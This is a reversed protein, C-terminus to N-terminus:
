KNRNRLAMIAAAKNFNEGHGTTDFAVGNPRYSGAKEGGPQGAGQMPDMPPMGGIAGGGGGGPQPTTTPQGQAMANLKDPTATMDQAPVPIGLHDVIKAMLNKMQMIEVNVDIKPKLGAAGSGAPGGAGGAGGAQQMQMLQQMQATLQDIRPDSPPAGGADGGGGGPPAGGGGGGMAAMPDGGGGAAPDGGGGGGGMGPDGGPVFAIKGFGGLRLTPSAKKVMELLAPNVLHDTNFM